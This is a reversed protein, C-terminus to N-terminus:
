EIGGQGMAEFVDEMDSEIEEGTNPVDSPRRFQTMHQWAARAIEPDTVFSGARQAQRLQVPLADGEMADIAGDSVRWTFTHNIGEIECSYMKITTTNM